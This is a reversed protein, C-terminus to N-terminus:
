ILGQDRMAMLQYVSPRMPLSGDPAREIKPEQRLDLGIGLAEFVALLSAMTVHGGGAEISRLTGRAVGARKALDRQSLKLFMRRQVVKQAIKEAMPNM